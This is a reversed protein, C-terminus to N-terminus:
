NKANSMCITKKESKERPSHSLDPTQTESKEKPVQKSYKREKPLKVFPIITKKQNFQYATLPLTRQNLNSLMQLHFVGPQQFRVTKM